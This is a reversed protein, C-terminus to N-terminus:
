SLPPASQVTSEAVTTLAEPGNYIDPDTISVVFVNYPVYFISLPASWQNAINTASFYLITITVRTGHFANLASCNYSVLHASFHHHSLLEM